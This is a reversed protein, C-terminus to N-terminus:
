QDGAEDAWGRRAAIPWFRATVRPTERAMPSDLRGAPENPLENPLENPGPGDPCPPRLDGPGASTPCKAGDLPVRAATPGPVGAHPRTGRRAGTAARGAARPGNNHRCPRLAAM